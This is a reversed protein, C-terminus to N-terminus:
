EESRGKLLTIHVRGYRRDRFREFEEPFIPEHVEADWEAAIIGGPALIHREMVMALTKEYLGSGYPPDLFILSYSERRSSLFSLSDTRLVEAKEALRAKELNARVANEAAKDFDVFVARDAGRSLAEIGLAGSGAFLDLVAAGRIYPTLMSFLAEKVRDLTPRTDEGPPSTLSLGRATGSIVRM